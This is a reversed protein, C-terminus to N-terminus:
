LRDTVVAFSKCTQITGTRVQGFCVFSVDAAATRCFDANFTRISHVFCLSIGSLEPEWAIYIIIM